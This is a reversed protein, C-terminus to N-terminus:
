VAVKVWPKPGVLYLRNEDLTEFTEGCPKAKSRVNESVMYPLVPNLGLVTASGERSSLVVMRQILQLPASM